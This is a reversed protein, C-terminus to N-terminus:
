NIEFMTYSIKNWYVITSEKLHGRPGGNHIRALIELNSDEPAWRSWYALIVSRAYEDEMVAYYGREALNPDHEVADIWYNETIQYPGLEGNQGYNNIGGSSEVQKIADLLTNKNYVFAPAINTKEDKHSAWLIGTIISLLCALILIMFGDQRMDFRLMINLIKGLGRVGFIVM